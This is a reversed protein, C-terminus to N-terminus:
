EISELLKSGHIVRLVIVKKEIVKFITRYKKFLLHRYEKKLTQNEPILPCRLPFRELTNAQNELEEIFLDAMKNSDEAIYNWIEEIDQEATKTIEVSFKTTM